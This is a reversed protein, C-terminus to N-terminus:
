ATTVWPGQNVENPQQLARQDQLYSLTGSRAVGCSLRHEYVMSSSSILVAQCQWVAQQKLSM